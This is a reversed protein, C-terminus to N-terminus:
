GLKKKIENYLSLRSKKEKGKISGKAVTSQSNRLELMQSNRKLPSILNVKISNM